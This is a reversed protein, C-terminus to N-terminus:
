ARRARRGRKLRAILGASALWHWLTGPEPLPVTPRGLRGNELRITGAGSRLVPSGAAIFESDRLEIASATTAVAVAVPASLTAVLALIKLADRPIRM